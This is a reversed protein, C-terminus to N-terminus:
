GSAGSNAASPLAIPTKSNAHEAIMAADISPASIAYREPYGTCNEQSYGYQPLEEPQGSVFLGLERLTKPTPDVVEAVTKKAGPAKAPSKAVYPYAPIDRNTEPEDGMAAPRRPFNKPPTYYIGGPLDNRAEMERHMQCMSCWSCCQSKLCSQWKPEHINYRRKLKERLHFVFCCRGIGCSVLDSIAAATCIGWSMTREGTNLLNNLYGLHCYCCYAEEAIIDRKECCGCIHKQWAAPGLYSSDEGAPVVHGIMLEPRLVLARASEEGFPRRAAATRAQRRTRASQQQLAAAITAARLQEIQERVTRARQTTNASPQARRVM